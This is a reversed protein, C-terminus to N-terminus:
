GKIAGLTLGRVIHKQLLLVMVIEPILGVLTVACIAGWLIVHGGILSPIVVTFP